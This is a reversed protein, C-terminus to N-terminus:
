FEIRFIKKFNNKAKEVWLVKRLLSVGPLRAILIWIHARLSRDQISALFSRLKFSKANRGQKADTLVKVLADRWKPDFLSLDKSHVHLAFVQTGSADLLKENEFVLQATPAFYDHHTQDIYRKTRGFTNKPDQGFYWLGLALPDFYGGFLELLTEQAPDFDVGSRISKSTISPLYVHRDNHESSYQSMSFMDTTTPNEAAYIRIEEVFFETEIANPTYILAAVDNFNNVRMWSVAKIEEFKEWPFNPMLILDSEIHLLGRDPQLKHFQGLAFLRLFTYKWFGNRFNFHSHEQMRAFLEFDENSEEFYYITVKEPLFIKVQHDLILVTEIEPFLDAHRQLNFLLHEPIKPGLHVFVAIPLQTNLRSEM